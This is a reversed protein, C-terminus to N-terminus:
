HASAQRFRGRKTKKGGVKKKEVGNVPQMATVKDFTELKYQHILDTIKKAYAPDTAYGTKLFAQFFEPISNAFKSLTIKFRIAHRHATDEISQKWDTYTRFNDYITYPQGDKTYEGTKLKVPVGTWVGKGSGVKVGTLNNFEKALASKGFGSELAAQGILLSAPVDYRKAMVVATPAIEKIFEGPTM